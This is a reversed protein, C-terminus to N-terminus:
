PLSDALNSGVFMVTYAKTTVRGFTITINTADVDVRAGIKQGSSDVLDVMVHPNGNGHPIVYTQQGQPISIKRMRPILGAVTPFLNGANTGTGGKATSLTNVTAGPKSLDLPGFGIVTGASNVRLCFDAGTAVIPALPGTSNGNGTVGLVSLGAVASIKSISLNSITTQIAGSVAGSGSVDGQLTVTPNIGGTLMLKSALDAFTIEGVTGPGVLTRGLVVGSSVNQFKSFNVANPSITISGNLSLTADGAMTVFAPEQNGSGTTAQLFQGPAGANSCAAAGTGAGYVVAFTTLSGRGIGGNPVGLIGTVHTPSSGGLVVKGYGPTSGSILVNGAPAAALRALTTLGSAYLIDGVAYSAFGTGGNVEDLAGTVAAAQSLDIAGFNPAGGGSPCRFVQYASPASSFGITSAGSAYPVAYTTYDSSQAFHFVTGVQVLGRDVSYIAGGATQVFTLADTGLTFPEPTQLSWTTGGNTSGSTVFYADGTTLEADTDADSRRTLVYATGASGAATVTYVGNHKASTSTENKVLVDDGASVSSGDVTLAGNSTATLVTVAGGSATYAPLAAATAYKVPTNPSNGAMVSDVWHKTAADQDAVPDALGTIRKSNMVLVDTPPGWQDLTIYTRDVATCVGGVGTVVKKDALAIDSPVVSLATVNLQRSSGATQFTGSGSAKGSLSLTIFDSLGDASAAVGNLYGNFIEVSLQDNFVVPVGNRTGPVHTPWIQHWEVGDSWEPLGRPHFSSGSNFGFKGSPSNGAPTAAWHEFLVRKIELESLDIPSEIIIAASM